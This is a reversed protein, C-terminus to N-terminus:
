SMSGTANRRAHARMPVLHSEQVGLRKAAHQDLQHLRYGPVLGREENVDMTLTAVERDVQLRWHVYHQPQRDFLIPQRNETSAPRSAASM